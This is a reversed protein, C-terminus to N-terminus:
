DSKQFIPKGGNVRKTIVWQQSISLINNVCWYLVLGAPFFLFFITFVIPLAMMVKQQIPDLPSPNLKHQLIMTAGMIIPLVFYPDPIALDHIWLMWPAQRLEVSELLVYYLAIFVPIQVLIPLCGGFPNIKEERYMKMMSEHLAQKNDAHREKLAKLRPHVKRMKAMSRYSAESLKFFVAKIALTLFIISWGWNGIVGHIWDLIWFLPKSIITLWGFDISLELGPSIPELHKEIKPGVYFQSKFERDAGIAVKDLTASRIGIRYNSTDKDYLSYFKNTEDKAPVWAGVFYHELMAVWGGVQNNLESRSALEQEEMEDFSIKEYKDETTYIAAGKFTPLFVSGQNDKVHRRILQRYINGKWEKSSKNTVKYNVDINYRGKRFVYTKTVTIGSDNKWVFVVEMKERGALDFETKAIEYKSYHNPAMGKQEKRVAFGSQTHYINRNTNQMLRFPSKDKVSKYYQLLDVQTIDAGITNMEIAFVDTKIKITKGTSKSNAANVNGKSREETTAASPIGKIQKEKNTSKGSRQAAPITGSKDDVIKPIDSSPKNQDKIRKVQAQEWQSYLSMGIVVLAIVLFLRQNEM